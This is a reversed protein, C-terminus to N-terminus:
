GLEEQSYRRGDVVWKANPSAATEVKMCFGM